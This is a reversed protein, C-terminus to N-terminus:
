RTQAGPSGYLDIMQMRAAQMREAVVPLFRRYLEYGVEHDEEMKGRLCRADLSIVRTLQQARASLFTRYPPMLWSWGFIDGEDLTEVQIAPRAPVPIELVVCGHRLLYFKDAADGERFIYDGAAFRENAACGAILERMNTDMGAFFRHRALLAELGEVKVM